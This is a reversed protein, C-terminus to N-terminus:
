VSTGTRKFKYGFTASVIFGYDWTSPSFKNDVGSFESKYLTASAVYFLNKVLKQQVYVEIGYVRGRGTPAYQDSGVASYDTGINAYSIGNTLSVPYNRYDKYFAEFTFRLDNKPVFETGITYHIANTYKLDKNVLIGNADKYGLITYAPLKYYSGVSASVNWQNNIIYSFSARPSITRLPNLGSKTYTNIDTRIGGSM